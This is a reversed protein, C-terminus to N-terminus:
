FFTPPTNKKHIQRSHGLLCDIIFALTYRNLEVSSVLGVKCGKSMKFSALSGNVTNTSTTICYDNVRDGNIAPPTTTNEVFQFYRRVQPYFRNIVTIKKNSQKMNTLGFRLAVM